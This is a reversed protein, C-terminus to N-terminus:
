PQQVYARRCPHDDVIKQESRTRVNNEWLEAQLAVEDDSRM